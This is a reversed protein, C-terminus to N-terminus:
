EDDEVLKFGYEDACIAAIALLLEERRNSREYEPLGECKSNLPIKIGNVELAEHTLRIEHGNVTTLATAAPNYHQVIPNMAANNGHM